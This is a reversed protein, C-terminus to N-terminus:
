VEFSYRAEVKPYKENFATNVAIIRSRLVEMFQSCEELSEPPYLYGDFKVVVSADNQRHFQIEGDSFLGDDDENKTVTTRRSILYRDSADGLNYSLDDVVMRSTAVEGANSNAYILEVKM